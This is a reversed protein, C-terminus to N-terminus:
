RGALGRGKAQQYNITDSTVNRFFRGSYYGVRRANSLATSRSAIIRSIRVGVGVEEM